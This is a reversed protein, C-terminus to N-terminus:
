KGWNTKLYEEAKKLAPHPALGRAKAEMSQRMVQLAQEKNAITDGVEVYDATPINSVPASAPKTPVSASKLTLFQNVQNVNINYNEDIPNMGMAAMEKLVEGNQIQESINEYKPDNALDKFYREVSLEQLSAFGKPPRSQTQPQEIPQVPQSSQVDASAQPQQTQQQYNQPNSIRSKVKEYGGQSAYFKAMDALQEETFGHLNPAQATEVPAQTVPTEVPTNLNTTPTAETQPAQAEGAPTPNNEM